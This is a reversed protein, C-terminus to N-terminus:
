QGTTALGIVVVKRRDAAALMAERDVILTKGAEVAIARGGHRHVNEITEAGITPVDFRMDQDPKAVKILTWGGHKCLGGAREIMRDTGEIAEVAIVEREKVAISQGVDLRGMEKAISWGFEIDALLSESPQVSGMVGVPAMAERCYEVSDGLVIGKEAMVDAVACLVTDNRKDGARFFWLKISTWDPLHRLIRFKGYMDSKRVSGAMIARAVGQRRFFRIWGGLKAVGTWRFADVEGALSPDAFGRIGAVVVRHGARKAGRAVLFPFGGAGAILGLASADGSDENPRKSKQVKPSKLLM